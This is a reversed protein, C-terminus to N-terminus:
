YSYIKNIFIFLHLYIINGNNEYEKLRSEGRITSEKNDSIPSFISHMIEGKRVYDPSLSFNLSDDEFPIRM